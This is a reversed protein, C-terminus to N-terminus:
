RIQEQIKRSFNLAAVDCVDLLLLPMKADAPGYPGNHSLSSAAAAGTCGFVVVASHKGYRDPFLVRMMNARPRQHVNEAILTQRRICDSPGSYRRHRILSSRESSPTEGCPCYWPHDLASPVESLSLAALAHYSAVRRARALRQPGYANGSSSSFRSQSIRSGKLQVCHPYRPSFDLCLHLSPLFPSYVIAEV